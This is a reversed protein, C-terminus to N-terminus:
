RRPMVRDLLAGFSVNFIVEAICRHWAHIKAGGSPAGDSSALHLPGM